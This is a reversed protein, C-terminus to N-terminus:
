CCQWFLSIQKQISASLPTVELAQFLVTFLWYTQLRTVIAAKKFSILRGM